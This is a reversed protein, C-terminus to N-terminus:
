KAIMIKKSYIPHVINSPQTSQTSKKISSRDKNVGPESLSKKKIKISTNGLAANCTNSSYKPIKKKVKREFTSKPNIFIDNDINYEKENQMKKIKSKM